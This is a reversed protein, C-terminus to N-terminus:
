GSHPLGNYRISSCSRNVKINNHLSYIDRKQASVVTDGEFYIMAKSGSKYGNQFKVNLLTVQLVRLKSMVMMLRIVIKLILLVMRKLAVIITAIVVMVMQMMM